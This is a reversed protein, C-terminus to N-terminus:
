LRVILITSALTRYDLCDPVLWNNERRRLLSWRTGIRPHFTYCPDVTGAWRDFHFITRTRPRRPHVKCRCDTAPWAIRPWRLHFPLPPSPSSARDLRDFRDLNQYKVSRGTQTENSQLTYIIINSSEIRNCIIKITWDNNVCDKTDPTRPRIFGATHIRSSCANNLLSIFYYFCSIISIFLNNRVTYM